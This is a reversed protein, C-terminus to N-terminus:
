ALVAKMRTIEARYFYLVRARVQLVESDFSATHGLREVDKSYLKM